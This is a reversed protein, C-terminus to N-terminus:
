GRVVGKGLGAATILAGMGHSDAFAVLDAVAVRRHGGPPLRRGPLLGSDVWKVVTNSACHMLRAIDHTGMYTPSKV